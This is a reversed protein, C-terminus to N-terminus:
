AAEPFRRRTQYGTALVTAVERFREQLTLGAPETVVHSM